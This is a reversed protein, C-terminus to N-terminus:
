ARSRRRGGEIVADAGVIEHMFETADSKMIPKADRDFADAFSRATVPAGTHFRFTKKLEFTYTRGDKSVRWSRVVEPIVRTGAAKAKDPYNFLKACTAFELSWSSVDYALAPDVFDLDSFRALRLTGGRKAQASLSTNPGSGAPSAFGAAVLM